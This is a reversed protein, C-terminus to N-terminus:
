SRWPEDDDDVQEPDDPDGYDFDTSQLHEEQDWKEYYHRRKRYRLFAGIVVIVALGIWFFMTDMFLTVLNYRQGLYHRYDSDFEMMNSGTAANMAGDVSVGHLLSDLFVNFQERGYIDLFYSVALYAEAYALHAKSENFLNVQDIDTLGLFDSTLGARSMAVYDSWDWEHSVYQAVGEEVWRPADYFGTRKDLVMHAYEHILLTSLPKGINFHEPSKIVISKRVPIAAAAGWDPFKGRLLHDFDRQTEPLYVQVTYNLSDQLLEALRARAIRLSSDAVVRYHPNDFHLKWPEPTTITTDAAVVGASFFLLALLVFFIIKIWSVSALYHIM